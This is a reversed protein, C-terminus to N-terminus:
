KDKIPPTHKTTTVVPKVLGGPKLMAKGTDAVMKKVTDMKQKATDPPTAMKKATDANVAPPTDTKAPEKSDAENNCSSFSVTALMGLALMGALLKKSNTKQM